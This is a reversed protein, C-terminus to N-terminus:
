HLYDEKTLPKQTPAPPIVDPFLFKKSEDWNVGTEYFKLIRKQIDKSDGHMGALEKTHIIDLYDKVTLQPILVKNDVTDYRDDMEM